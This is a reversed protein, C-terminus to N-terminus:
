GSELAWLRRTLEAIGQRLHRRYTSFPLDLLEAAQEQTAAPQFYTHYLARYLKGQRPHAQWAAAAELLIVQVATGRNMTSTKEGVLRTQALPNNQLVATDTFDRLAERVATAFEAESLVLFEEAPPPVSNELGSERQAMLELWALPPTKRWDHGFVGYQRGDVVFDATPLRTLDAYAFVATWFDADACPFLTYVLGPTTLYHQVVNLFIRSQVPSVAQYSGAALWFRFLTVREQSRLPLQALLFNWAARTAPDNNREAAQLRELPLLLLFGQVDGGAQRFVATREPFRALWHAALQASTEGEYQRVLALIPVIDKPHLQDTFVHGSLQWEFYPRVIPNERHLFIYDALVHRQEQPDPQQVRQLYYQRARGHLLAYLEPRRWRLDATLAERALDHPFLGYRTADMFSLGRLWEFLDHADTQALLAALLSETTLRVLACAELAQRHAPTPAQQVFQELLAKIVDPAKEPQFPADPQQAAVDAVLSLALAHGHTFALVAEHQGGPIGRRALFDRSEAASLNRLPRIRMMAQWGPDTRWALGPPQRGALVVLVNEPLHPLFDNRLWNDLPTLREYTDILLVTRGDRPLSPAVDADPPLGLTSRLVDELFAPAPDTDRGDLLVVRAGTEEAMYAFERLLMTKGIGGPGFLYLVVFPLESAALAVQFLEKDDTRGVFQRRRAQELRAQLSTSM